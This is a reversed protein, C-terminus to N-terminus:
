TIHLPSVYVTALFTITLMNHLLISTALYNDIKLGKIEGVTRVQHHVHLRYGTKFIYDDFITLAKM